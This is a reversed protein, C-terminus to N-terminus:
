IRKLAAEDRYVEFFVLEDHKKESRHCLYALVGPENKEVAACMERLAALAKEEQAPVLKFRAIQSVTKGAGVESASSRGALVSRRWARVAACFARRTLLGRDITMAHGKGLGPIPFANIREIRRNARWKLDVKPTGKDMGPSVDRRRVPCLAGDM